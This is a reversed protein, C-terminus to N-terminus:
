NTNESVHVDLQKERNYIFSITVPKDKTNKVYLNQLSNTNKEGPMFYIATGYKKDIEPIPAFDHKTPADVLLGANQAAENILSAVHCVGDAALWGDSKFGESSNFHANTTKVVKGEFEPLVDEHFAFVEGPKLVFSYTFPNRVNDWDINGDKVIGRMYALTLLINDSFVDNVFTNAYRDALSFQMDGLVQGVPMAPINAATLNLLLSITVLFSPLM